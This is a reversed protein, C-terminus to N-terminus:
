NHSDDSSSEEEEPYCKRKKKREAFGAAVTAFTQQMKLRDEWRERREEARQTREAQMQMMFISAFDPRGGARDPSIVNSNNARRELSAASPVESQTGDSNLFSGNGEMNYVEEGGGLM